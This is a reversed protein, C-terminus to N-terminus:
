PAFTSLLFPLHGGALYKLLLNGLIIVNYLYISVIDMNYYPSARALVFFSATMIVVADRPEMHIGGQNVQGDDESGTFPSAAVSPM